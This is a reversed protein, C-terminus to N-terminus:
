AGQPAGAKKPRSLIKVFGPFTSYDWQIDFSPPLFSHQVKQFLLANVGIDYLLDLPEPRLVRGRRLRRLPNGRGTIGIIAPLDPLCRGRRQQASLMQQQHTGLGGTLVHQRLIQRRGKAPGAPIDGEIDIGVGGGENAGVGKVLAPDREPRARHILAGTQAAEAHQILDVHGFVLGQRHEMGRQVEPPDDVHRAIVADM